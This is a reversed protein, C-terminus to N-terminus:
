PTLCCLLSRNYDMRAAHRRCAPHSTLAGSRAWASIERDKMLDDRLNGNSSHSVAWEHAVEDFDAACGHELVRWVRKFGLTRLQRHVDTYNAPGDEEIMVVSVQDLLSTGWLHEICGECDVLATNIRLGTAKELEKIAGADGLNPLVRQNRVRADKYNLRNAAPMTTTEYNTRYSGSYNAGMFGGVILPESSITGFWAHFHCRHTKRNLLLNSHVMGDPEVSIVKGQTVEALVCSTTGYRAGLEVVTHQPTLLARAM